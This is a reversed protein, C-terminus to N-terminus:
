KAYAEGHEENAFDDGTVNEHPQSPGKAVADHETQVRHLVIGPYVTWKVGIVIQVQKYRSAPATLSLKVRLDCQCHFKKM